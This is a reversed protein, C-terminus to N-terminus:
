VHDADLSQIIFLQGPLKGKLWLGFLLTLALLSLGALLWLKSATATQPLFGQQISNIQWGAPMLQGLQHEGKDVHHPNIPTVDVALLSTASSVLHYQLALAEIQKEVRSRNVSDQSMELSTIKANAWVLDLGVAAEATNFDLQTQWYQGNIQGSIIVPQLQEAPLKFSIAVPSQQYVDKIDAPWYDPISGDLHYLEVDTLVPQSIKEILQTMQLEVEELKGIYTFTGRGITAARKMFHSNPASGIGVTFLRADHLQHSIQEFLQAENSVAGDTIFIVQRLKPQQQEINITSALAKDLAPAIETGGDAHLAAIYRSAKILNANTAVQAQAFLSQASSNFDIINFSDKPNLTSLALNLALKAQKISEGAMSGSTDIVLILERNIQHQPKRVLNPPLLLAMAYIDDSIEAKEGMSLQHTQGTQYFVAAAVEEGVDTHWQLVFDRDLPINGQLVVNTLRGQHHQQIDHYLSSLQIQGFGSDININMSVKHSPSPQQVQNLIPAVLQQTKSYENRQFDPRYRPAVVLPFRLNFMSDQYSLTELYTIEVVVQQQPGINALQTTFINSRQQSILSAQKGQQKALEFEKKAEHKPKIVGKIAREGILLNMGDVAANDPLPFVYKANIWGDEINNFIQKVTVRNILGSVTMEVQTDLALIQKSQGNIRYSVVGQTIEDSLKSADVYRNQSAESVNTVIPLLLGILGFLFPLKAFM